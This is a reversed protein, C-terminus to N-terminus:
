VRRILFLTPNDSNDVAEIYSIGEIACSCDGAGYKTYYNYLKTYEGDGDCIIDCYNIYDNDVIESISANTNEFIGDEIYNEYMKAYLGVVDPDETWHKVRDILMDLFEDNDVYIYM